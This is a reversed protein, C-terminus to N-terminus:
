YEEDDVLFGDEGCHPCVVYDDTGNWPFVNGCDGCEVYREM